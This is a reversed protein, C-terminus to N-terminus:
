KTGYFYSASILSTRDWFDCGCGSEHFAAMWIRLGDPTVRWYDKPAEHYPYLFPLQVWIEGGPKLVRHLEAIAKQPYPVHELISWCVVASFSDDEFEMDHIDYQYDIFDRQDYKDISVWNPGFKKGIGEKVGIQLNRKGDCRKLFNEFLQQRKNDMSPVNYTGRVKYAARKYNAVYFLFPSVWRLKRYFFRLVKRM